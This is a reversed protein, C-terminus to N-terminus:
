FLQITDGHGNLGQLFIVQYPQTELGLHTNLLHNGHGAKRRIQHLCVVCLTICILLYAYPSQKGIENLGHDLEAFEM